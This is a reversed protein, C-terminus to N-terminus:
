GFAVTGDSIPSSAIAMMDSFSIEGATWVDPRGPVSHSGIFGGGASVKSSGRGM